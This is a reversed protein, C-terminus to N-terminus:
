EVLDRRGLARLRDRCRDADARWGLQEAARLRVVLSRPMYLLGFLPEPHDLSEAVRYAELAQGRAALLEALKLREASLSEWWGWTLDSASANPTLARFRALAGVTDSRALAAWAGMADAMVRDGASASAGARRALEASVARVAGAHGARFDWQGRWWLAPNSMTAFDDSLRTTVVEMERASDVSTGAVADVVYLGIAATFGSDIAAELVYRAEATEGQAVLLDQLGMVAGWRHNRQAAPSALVARFAAEACSARGESLALVKGTAVVEEPHLRAHTAWDVGYPGHRACDLMLNLQALRSSDPDLGRFTDILRQAQDVDGRRLSTEALHFLAPAFDPELELARVFWIEASDPAWGRPFLHYFVEGVGMVAEVWRPDDAVIRRFRAVASDAAGTLYDRLGLAFTRYRSPLLRPHALAVEVFGLAEGEAHEWHAAWAGKLAAVALASDEAVAHRYSELADSFRFQRYAQEGQLWSAVAAPRREALASLDVTRGPALLRPLLGTVAAWGAQAVLSSDRKASRQGVLSDGRVDTLRLTVTASDAQRVIEGDIFYRARRDRAIRRATRVTLRGVDAREDVDLWTWGHIWTLPATQELASEIMSAVDEGASGGSRDVLPFVVVKNPDLPPPPSLVFRWLAVATLGLMSLTTARAVRRRTWWRRRAQELATAFGTVMAYRDAPVKALARELADQVAIPVTPRVVRLSPPPEQVHRALIAAATRGTFPPDGALMQYLVCALSYQDSRGDIHDAAVAQEPSMYEPTGIAIGRSTLNTGGAESIARAIGFDAVLADEGSLYINEPKVDRHVVNHAHAYQLAEAVQQTIRLADDVPLSVERELRAALTEGEMPAMTYFLFGDAAGSDYLPVIHPHQLQAAIVIERLFRERGLLDSLEPRLVKLAVPRTHKLDTALFVVAMGGRGLERELTYRGALAQQLRDMLDAM